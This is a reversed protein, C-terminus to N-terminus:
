MPVFHVLFIRYQLVQWEVTDLHHASRHPLQDWGFCIEYVSDASLARGKIHLLSHSSSRTADIIIRPSVCCIKARQRSWDAVSPSSDEVAVQMLEVMTGHYKLLPKQMRMSTCYRCPPHVASHLIAEWEQLNEPVPSCVNKELRWCSLSERGETRVHDDRVCEMRFSFFACSRSIRRTWSWEGDDLRNHWFPDGPRM